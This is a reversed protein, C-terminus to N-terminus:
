TGPQDMAAGAVIRCGPVFILRTSRIPRCPLPEAAPFNKRHIAIGRDGLDVVSPHNERPTLADLQSFIEVKASVDEPGNSRFSLDADALV